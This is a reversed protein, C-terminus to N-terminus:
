NINFPYTFFIFHILNFVFHISIPVYINQTKYYSYAYVTGMISAVLTYTQGASFHALGFLVGSLLISCVQWYPKASINQMQQQVFGRFFVEEVYCTLFLNTIMWGIFISSIKPDYSILGTAYAYAFSLGACVSFLIGVKIGNNLGVQQAKPVVFTLLLLGLIAKDLNLYKTFLPAYESVQFDHIAIANNFGPVIHLLFIVSGVFVLLGSTYKIKLSDSHNFYFCALGLMVIAPLSINTLLGCYLAVVVSLAVLYLTINKTLYHNGALGLLIPSFTALAGITLSLGFIEFSEYM